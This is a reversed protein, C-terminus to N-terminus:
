VKPERLNEGKKEADVAIKPREGSEGIIVDVKAGDFSVRAISMGASRVAKVMRAVEDHSIRSVPRSM